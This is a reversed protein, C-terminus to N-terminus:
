NHPRVLPFMIEIIMARIMKYLIKMDKKEISSVLLRLNLNNKNVRSFSNLDLPEGLTCLAQKELLYRWCLLDWITHYIVFLLM